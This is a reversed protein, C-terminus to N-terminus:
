HNQIWKIWKNQIFDINLFLFLKIDIQVIVEIKLISYKQRGLGLYSSLGLDSLISKGATKKLENKTRDTRVSTEQAWLDRSSPLEQAQLRCSVGLNYVHSFPFM